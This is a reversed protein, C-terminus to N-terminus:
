ASEKGNCWRAALTAFDRAALRVDEFVIHEDIAHAHALDGPGWVLTPTKHHLPRVGAECGSNFAGWGSWGPMTASTEARDAAISEAVRCIAATPETRHGLYQETFGVQVRAPDGGLSAVRALLERTFRATMEDPNDRPLLELYGGLTCRDCVMGQWQGGHIADVTMPRAIPYEAFLEDDSQNWARELEALSTQVLRMLEIADQGLWKVTGHVARGTTAITFRCGARSACRPLNQTPELIVSADARHGRLISGLTGLGVCDEEGPVIELSVDGALRTPQSKLLMMGWLAAVLPGKTDCAGRGYVKGDRVGGAWPDISWSEPSPASVVDSHANFMLSPGRGTGPLTIVLTPRGTLPKHPPLPGIAGELEAEDSQWRDVKFGHAAAFAELYDVMPREDGSVSKFTILTRLLTLM